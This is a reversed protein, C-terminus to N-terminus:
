RKRRRQSFSRGRTAQFVHAIMSITSSPHFDVFSVDAPYPLPLVGIAEVQMVFKVFPFKLSNGTPHQYNVIRM